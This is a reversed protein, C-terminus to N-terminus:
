HLYPDFLSRLFDPELYAQMKLFTDANRLTHGQTQYMVWAMASWSIGRLCNFPDVLRVREVITGRLHPDAVENRYTELFLRRDAAPMRYDTKWLTTTPASFHSLDQSPDGWLPKEWDVLYIRGIQRNVIFNGSNVETNIVRFCPDSLYYAEAGRAQNAWELVEALYQRVFPDALESQLYVNALRVCETYIGTLPHDERILHINETPIDLSHLRAFLGAAQQLDRRYDLAEGPLYEMILLGYDLFDVRDDLFYPQPTVGSDKLLRLAGFEYAIQDERAIQTGINVRLVWCNGDQIVRYNMNYEGQALPLVQFPRDNQWLPVSDLEAQNLYAIVRPLYANLDM